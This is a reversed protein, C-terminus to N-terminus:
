VERMRLTWVSRSDVTSSSSLVSGNASTMTTIDSDNIASFTVNDNSIDDGAAATDAAVTVDSLVSFGSSLNACRRSQRPVDCTSWFRTWLLVCWSSMPILSSVRLVTRANVTQNDTQRDTHWQWSRRIGPCLSKHQNENKDRHHQRRSQRWAHSTMWRRGVLPIDTKTRRVLRRCRWGQRAMIAAPLDFPCQRAHTFQTRVTQTPRRYLVPTKDTITYIRM